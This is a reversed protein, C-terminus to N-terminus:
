LSKSVAVLSSAWATLVVDETEVGALTDCEGAVVDVAFRGVGCAAAVAIM